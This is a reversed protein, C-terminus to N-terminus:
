AANLCCKKYKKGSGCPCPDNRGVSRLPNRIPQEAVLGDDMDLEPDMALFDVASIIPGVGIWPVASMAKPDAQSERLDSWFDELTAVDPDILGDKFLAEAQSALGAFGMGSVANIWGLAVLPEPGDLRQLVTALYSYVEAEKLQDTRALYALVMFLHARFEEDLDDEILEHLLNAQGNFTSILAGPGIAGIDEGFILEATEADTLLHCLDPFSAQDRVEAMVLVLFYIARQTRESIDEGFACRHLLERCPKANDDWHELLWHMAEAPIDKAEALATIADDFTM